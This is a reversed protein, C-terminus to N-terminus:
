ASADRTRLIARFMHELPGEASRTELASRGWNISISIPTKGQSQKVALVDDQISLFGKDPAHTPTAADCHEVLLSAGSWDRQRLDTLSAAFGELSAQAGGGGLRPASHLEVAKVVTRGLYKHMHAITRRASEAFDLARSRGDKDASALGFHKDDELREMTGPLTTLVLTWDPRIQDILWGDDRAHLRGNFPQELGAIHMEALGQYLAAEASEDLSAAAAYAGVYINM